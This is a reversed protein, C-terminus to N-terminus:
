DFTLDLEYPFGGFFLDKHRCRFCGYATLVPVFVMPTLM